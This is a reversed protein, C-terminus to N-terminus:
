HSPAGQDKDQLGTLHDSALTGLNYCYSKQIPQSSRRWLRVPVSAHPRVSGSTPPRIGRRLGGRGVRAACSRPGTRVCCPAVPDLLILGALRSTAAVKIRVLFPLQGSRATVLMKFDHANRSYRSSVQLTFAAVVRPARGARRRAANCSTPISCSNRRTTGQWVGRPVCGLPRGVVTELIAPGLRAKIM